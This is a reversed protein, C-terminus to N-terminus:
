SMGYGGYGHRWRAGSQAQVPTAHESEDARAPTEMATRATRQSPAHPGHDLVNAAIARIRENEAAFHADIRTRMDAHALLDWDRYILRDFGHQILLRRLRIFPALVPRLRRAPMGADQPRPAPMTRNTGPHFLRIALASYSRNESKGGTDVPLDAIGLAAALRARVQKPRTKLDEQRFLYVAEPGFTEAYGEYIELFRQNLPEVTRAGYTWRDLRPRFEGDYHNLFVHVPVSAGKVLQQRYASQLWDAQNRVFYIIRAEPFLEHMLRTNAAHDHHNGYMDGSIHPESLVLTRPDGSDRWAQVADRAIASTAADDPHRVANRIAPWLPSPNVQFREGDLPRLVRRQLYRTGTKHLGIHLVVRPSTNDLM